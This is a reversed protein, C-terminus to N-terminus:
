KEDCQQGERQQKRYKKLDKKFLWRRLYKACIAAPVPFLSLGIIEVKGRMGVDSKKLVSLFHSRLYKKSDKFEKKYEQKANSDIIYAIINFNNKWIHWDAANFTKEKKIILHNKTYKINNLAAIMDTVNRVTTGSNPNNKRYVYVKRHGYAVSNSLQANMASFYLGEGFWRIVFSLNNRKVVSMSYLKNWPGVMTKAYVIECTADEPALVRVNDMENQKMNRTTFLCDSMSMEAGNEEAIRVLYEVCDSALWDDGDIFMLYKGSAIKLGSNRAESVGGNKKHIVVIRKDERAYDDCIRGCNDPSEDDVLIIELNKYTQKLVSDVCQRIFDESKYFPIIISVLSSPEIGKKSM